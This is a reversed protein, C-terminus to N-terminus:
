KSKLTLATVAGFILAMGTIHITNLQEGVLFVGWCAAMLAESLNITACTSAPTTKLGAMFTTYGLATAILGLHLAVIIGGPTFIWDIPFMFFVPSVLVAGIAFLVMIVAAPDNNAVVKKGFVSYFAYGTAGLCALVLGIPNAQMDPSFSLMVLGGIAIFTTIYWLTSPREKLFIIGLIGTSIPIFGCAVVASVAVGTAKAAAFFFMQYALIGLASILTVAKPWTSIKPLRRTLSCWIFLAIFGLLLRMGGIVQPTAGEPSLAQTTGTTSFCLSAILIFIPGQYKTWIGKGMGM